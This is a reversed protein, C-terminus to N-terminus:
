IRFLDNKPKDRGASVFDNGVSPGVSPCVRNYLRPEPRFFRQPGFHYSVLRLCQRGAIVRWGFNKFDLREQFSDLPIFRGIYAPVVNKNVYSAGTSKRSKESRSDKWGFLKCLISLGSLRVPCVQRMKNSLVWWSSKQVKSWKQRYILGRIYLYSHTLPLISFSQIADIKHAFYPRSFFYM